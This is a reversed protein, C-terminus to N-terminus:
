QGRALLTLLRLLVLRIRLWARAIKAATQLGIARPIFTMSLMILKMMEVIHMAVANLVFGIRISILLKAAENHIM